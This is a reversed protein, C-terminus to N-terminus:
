RGALSRRILLDIYICKIPNLDIVNNSTSSTSETKNALSYGILKRASATTNTAFQFGFNGTSSITYQYTNSNFTITYTNSGASNMQTQLQTALESQTYYGNTLTATKLISSETFYVKNNNLNVNYLSNTMYFELINYM